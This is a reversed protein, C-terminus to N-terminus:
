LFISAFSSDSGYTETGQYAVTFVGVSGYMRSLSENTKRDANFIDLVDNVIEVLSQCFERFIKEIGKILLQDLVPFEHLPRLGSQHNTQNYRYPHGPKSSSDDVQAAVPQQSNITFLAHTDCLALSM